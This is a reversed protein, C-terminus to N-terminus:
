AEENLDFLERLRREVEDCIEPNNKLFLKANERWHKRWVRELVNWLTVNCYDLAM